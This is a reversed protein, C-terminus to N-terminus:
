EIKKVEDVVNGNEHVIIKTIKNNERIFEFQLDSEKLFFKNASEAHLVPHFDGVMLNLVTGEQKISITGFKESTYNGTFQKIHASSLSVEKQQNKYPAPGHDYSLVRSMKWENNKFQWVHMFKALGDLREKKGTEIIYFLHEGSLLAGYNNIPFVKVTGAVAERRLRWGTKSCIGSKTSEILKARTVTLGGKDHYFELDETLLSEMKEVDCTNYAQWFLSDLRLITEDLNTSQPQNVGQGAVFTACLMVVMFLLAALPIKISKM